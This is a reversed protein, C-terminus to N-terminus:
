SYLLNCATDKIQGALGWNMVNNLIDSEISIQVFFFQTTPTYFVLHM